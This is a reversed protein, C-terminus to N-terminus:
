LIKIVINFIDAFSVKFKIEASFNSLANLYTQGFGQSKQEKMITDGASSVLFFM